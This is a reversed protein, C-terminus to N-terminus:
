EADCLIGEVISPLDIGKYFSLCNDRMIEHNEEIYRIAEKIKKVDWQCCIGINFDNFPKELGPLENGIMPLGAGAYEFIKNPACYVANLISSNPNNRPSYSLIGMYAVETIKLHYPPKIFPILKVSKYKKYMTYCSADLAGMICFCYDDLEECAMAIEELRREDTLIGQYLIIKKKENQLSELIKEIDDPCKQFRCQDDFPKNPLIKPLKDLSWWASLIHARNYEPVVVKWASRAINDLHAKVIKQGPFEPMDERLEMLQMVHKYNPLISKLERATRDTTTWILDKNMMKNQVLRCLAKRRNLFLMSKKVPNKEEKLIVRQLRNDSHYIQLEDFSILEVNHGNHLLTEVLNRVPPLKSIEHYNVLLINM